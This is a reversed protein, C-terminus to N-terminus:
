LRNAVTLVVEGRTVHSPHVSMVEMWKKGLGDVAVVEDTSADAGRQDIITQLENMLEGVTM